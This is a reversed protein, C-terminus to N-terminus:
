TPEPQPAHGEVGASILVDEDGPKRSRCNRRPRCNPPGFVSLPEAMAQVRVVVDVRGTLEGARDIEVGIRRSLM